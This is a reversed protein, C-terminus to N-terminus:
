ATEGKITRAKGERMRDLLPIRSPCVHACLGCEICDHIGASAAEGDRGDLVAANLFLPNLAVPCARVCAGCSVCPEEPGSNIEEATLAVIAATTKTVPANINSVIRGTLTGGAVIREPATLLGGCEEIVDAIATGLRVRVHAPRKVAGGGVAVVRDIQPKRYVVAEYVSFATSPSVVVLDGDEGEAPLGIRRRVERTTNAPYRHAVRHIRPLDRGAAARLAKVAHEHERSAVICVQRAEVIQAVIRLGELVATPEVATLEVDASLYPETEAIDLVLCPTAHARRRQVHLHAPVASRPSCVVGGARILSLLTKADHEEWPLPEHKKGLRDFEGDLEIALSQSESGDFLVTRGKSVVRGPIPAHIPVALRSQSDAIVMGERVLDGPKVTAELRSGVHQQLPVVCTSPVAANWYGRELATQLSLPKVGGTPFATM